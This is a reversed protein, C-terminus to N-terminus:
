RDDHNGAYDYAPFYRAQAVVYLGLGAYQMGLSTDSTAWKNAIYSVGM